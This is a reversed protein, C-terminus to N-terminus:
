ALLGMMRRSIQRCPDVLFVYRACFCAQMHWSSFLSLCGTRVEWLYQPVSKCVHESILHPLYPLVLCSHM